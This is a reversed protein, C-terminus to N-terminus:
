FRKKVSFLARTFWQPALGVVSLIPWFYTYYLTSGYIFKLDDKNEKTLRFGYYKSAIVVRLFHRLYSLKKKVFINRPFPNRRDSYVMEKAKMAGLQISFLKNGNTQWGVAPVLGKVLPKTVALIKAQSLNLLITAYQIYHTGMYEENDTNLWFDKKMITAPLFSPVDSFVAFYEQANSFFLDCDSDIKEKSYTQLHFMSECLYKEKEEGYQSFNVSIIDLDPHEKVSDLIHSVAGDLFIDDQGSFWVYKGQATLAVKKFNGDM